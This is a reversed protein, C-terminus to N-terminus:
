PLSMVRVWAKASPSKLASILRMSWTWSPSQARTRGPTSQRSMWRAATSPMAPTSRSAPTIRQLMSSDSALPTARSKKGCPM